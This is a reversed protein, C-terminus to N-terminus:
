PYVGHIKLHKEYMQTLINPKNAYMFKFQMQMVDMHYDDDNWLPLIYRSADLHDGFDIYKAFPSKKHGHILFYALEEEQELLILLSIQKVIIEGSYQNM